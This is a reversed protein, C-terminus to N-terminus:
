EGIGNIRDEIDRLIEDSQRDNEITRNYVKYAYDRIRDAKDLLEQVDSNRKLSFGWVFGYAIGCIWMSSTLVFERLDRDTFWFSTLVIVMVVVNFICLGKNRKILEIM